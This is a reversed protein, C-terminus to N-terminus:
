ARRFLGSLDRDVLDEIGDVVLAAGADELERVAFGGTRVAVCALDLRAAAEVDYVSDGVVIASGGGTERWAAEIVEPSPKSKDVDDGTVVSDLLDRVGAVELARDTDDRHGSSAVCLRCGQERLSELLARAGPLPAVQDVIEQYARRSLERLRDGLREEVDDGAVESVLRDGGMGISRHVRWMPVNVQCAQFARGWAMAHHYTSDVLTGDLDFIAARDNPNM